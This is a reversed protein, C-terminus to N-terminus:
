WLQDNSRISGKRTLRRRDVHQCTQEGRTAACCEDVAVVHQTVHVLNLVDGTDTRLVVNEPVFQSRAFMEDEKCYEFANRRHLDAIFHAVLQM